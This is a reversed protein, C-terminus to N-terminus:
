QAPTRQKRRRECDRCASAYGDKRAKNRSYRDLPLLDTCQSCIKHTPIDSGDSVETPAITLSTDCPGESVSTDRVTASVDGSVSDEADVPILDHLTLPEIGAVASTSPEVTLARDTTGSGDPTPTRSLDGVLITLGTPLDSSAENFFNEIYKEFLEHPFKKGDFAVIFIKKGLEINRQAEVLSKAVIREAHAYVRDTHSTAAYEDVVRMARMLAAVTREYSLRRLANEVMARTTSATPRKILEQMDATYSVTQFSSHVLSLNPSKKFTNLVIQTQVERSSIQVIWPSVQM